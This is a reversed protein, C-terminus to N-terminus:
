NFRLRKSVKSLTIASFFLIFAYVPQSYRNEYGALPLYIIATYILPLAVVISPKKERFCIIIGIIGLILFVFNLGWLFSKILYWNFSNRVFWQQNLSFIDFRTGIWLNPSRLFYTKLVQVPDEYIRNLAITMFKKDVKNNHESSYAFPLSEIIDKEAKNRFAVPLYDKGWKGNIAWTGLWLTTGIRGQSVVIFKDTLRNNRYIWPAIILLSTITFIVGDRIRINMNKRSYMILVVTIFPILLIYIDRTLVSLGIFIGSFLYRKYDNLNILSFATIILLFATLTESLIAGTYVAEFPSCLMLIFVWPSSKPYLCASIRTILLVSILSIIIQIIQINLKGIGVTWTVLAIFYPYLPPRYYGFNKNQIIKQAADMYWSADGLLKYEVLWLM